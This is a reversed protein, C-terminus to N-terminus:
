TAGEPTPAGPALYNAPFYRLQGPENLLYDGANIGSHFHADIFGPSVLCGEANIKRDVPESYERGVFSIRDNEFVVVGNQIIEHEKGDYGVVFGGQVLTKM